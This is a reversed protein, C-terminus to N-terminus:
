KEHNSVQLYGILASSDLSAESPVILRLPKSVPEQEHYVRSQGIPSGDSPLTARNLPVERSGANKSMFSLALGGWSVTLPPLGAFAADQSCGCCFVNGGANRRLYPAFRHPLLGGATAAVRGAPHAHPQSCPSHAPDRAYAFSETEDCRRRHPRTVGPLDPAAM